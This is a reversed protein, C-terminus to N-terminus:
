SFHPLVRSTSDLFTLCVTAARQTPLRDAQQKWYIESILGRKQKNIGIFDM